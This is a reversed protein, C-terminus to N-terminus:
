TKKNSLFDPKKYIGKGIREIQGHKTLSQIARRVSHHLKSSDMTSFRTEKKSIADCLESITIQKKSTIEGHIIDVLSVYM